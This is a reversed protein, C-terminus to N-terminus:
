PGDSVKWLMLQNEPPPVFITQTPTGSHKSSVMYPCTGHVEIKPVGEPPAGAGRAGRFRFDFNLSRLDVLFM